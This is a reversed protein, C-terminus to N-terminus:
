RMEGKVFCSIFFGDGGGAEPLLQLRGTEAGPFYGPDLALPAPDMGCADRLWDANDTNEEKTLTCTSYLLKGGPRVYRVANKLIRRQLAALEGIKERKVRYKIEPKRGATGLGSCPLDAIVLDFRGEKEPDFLEADAVATEICRFGSRSINERIRAIKEASIDCALVEGEDKMLDAAQLSKGGPAACLDLVKM